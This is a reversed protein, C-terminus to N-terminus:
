LTMEHGNGPRPFFSLNSIASHNCTLFPNGGFAGLKQKGRRFSGPHGWALHTSGRRRCSSSSSSPVFRSRLRLRRPVLGVGYPPPLRGVCRPGRFSLLSILGSPGFLISFVKLIPVYVFNGAFGPGIRSRNEIRNPGEPKM